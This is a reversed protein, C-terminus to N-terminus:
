RYLMQALEQYIMNEDMGGISIHVIEGNRFYLFTPLSKIEYRAALAPYASTNVKIFRIFATDDAVKRFYPATYMCAGCHDGYFDVMAYETQILRDFNEATAEMVAM